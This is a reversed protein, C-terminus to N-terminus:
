EGEGIKGCEVLFRAFELRKQQEPIFQQALLAAMEAAADQVLPLLRLAVMHACALHPRYYRGKCECGQRTVLYFAGPNSRSWVRYLDGDIQEIQDALLIESAAAIREARAPWQQAAENAVTMIARQTITAPAATM